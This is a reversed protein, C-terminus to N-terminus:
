ELFLQRGESAAAYGAEDFPLARPQAKCSRPPSRASCLVMQQELKRRQSQVRECQAARKIRSSIDGSAALRRSYDALITHAEQLRGAIAMCECLECADAVTLEDGCGWQAEQVRLVASLLDCADDFAGSERRMAGHARLVPLADRYFALGLASARPRDIALALRRHEQMLPLAAEPNGVSRLHLALRGIHLLLLLLPQEQCEGCDVAQQLGRRSEQVCMQLQATAEDAFDGRAQPPRQLLQARAHLSRLPLTLRVSPRPHFGPARPIWLTRTLPAWPLAACAAASRRLLPVILM